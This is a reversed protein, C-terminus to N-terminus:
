GQDDNGLGTSSVEKADANVLIWRTGPPWSAWNRQYFREDRLNRYHPMVKGRSNWQKITKLTMKEQNLSVGDMKISKVDKVADEHASLYVIFGVVFQVIEFQTEAEEVSLGASFIGPTEPRDTLEHYEEITKASLIWELRWMEINLVIRGDGDPDKYTISLQPDADVDDSLNIPADHEHRYEAVIDKKEQGTLYTVFLGQIAQNNFHCTKPIAVTFIKEPPNLLKVQGEFNSALIQPIFAGSEPLYCVPNKAWRNEYIVNPTSVDAQLIGENLWKVYTRQWHQSGTKNGTAKCHKKIDARIGNSLLPYLYHAM